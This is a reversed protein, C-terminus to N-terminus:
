RGGEKANLILEAAMRAAEGCAWACAIPGGERRWADIKAPEDCHWGVLKDQVGYCRTSGLVEIFRNVMEKAAARVSSDAELDTFDLPGTVLGIAMLAGLLAGCTEGTGAVGGALTTSARLTGEDDLRLHTQLAWLVSRCCNSYARLNNFAAKAIADLVRDRSGVSENTDYIAKEQPGWIKTPGKDDPVVHV